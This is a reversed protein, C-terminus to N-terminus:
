VTMVAGKRTDFSFLKVHMQFQQVAEVTLQADVSGFVTLVQVAMLLNLM